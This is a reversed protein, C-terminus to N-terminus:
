KLESPPIGPLRISSALIRSAGSVAETPEGGLAWYCAPSVAAVGHRAGAQSSGDVGAQLILDVRRGAAMAIGRMRM